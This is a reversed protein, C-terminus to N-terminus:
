LQSSQSFHGRILHRAVNIYIIEVNKEFVKKFLFYLRLIINNEKVTYFKSNHLIEDDCSNFSRKRKM